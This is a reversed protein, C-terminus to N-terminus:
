MAIQTLTVTCNVSQALVKWLIGELGYRLLVQARVPKNTRPVNQVAQVKAEGPRFGGADITLPSKLFQCKGCKLRLNAQHLRELVEKLHEQDTGGTM